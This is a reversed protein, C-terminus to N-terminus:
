AYMYSQTKRILPKLSETDTPYGKEESQKLQAQEDAQAKQLHSKARECPNGSFFANWLWWIVHVAKITTCINCL